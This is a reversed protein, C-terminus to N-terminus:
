VSSSNELIDSVYLQMSDVRKNIQLNTRKKIVSKRKVQNNKQKKEQKSKAKQPQEGSQALSLRMKGMMARDTYALHSLNKLTDDGINNLVEPIDIRERSYKLVHHTIGDLYIHEIEKDHRCVKKRSLYKKMLKKCKDYDLRGSKEYMDHLKVFFKKLFRRDRHGGLDTKVSFKEEKNLKIFFDNVEDYYGRDFREDRSAMEFLKHNSIDIIYSLYEFNEMPSCAWDTSFNTVDSFFISGEAKYKTDNFLMMNMAHNERDSDLKVGIYSINIGLELCIRELTTAFWCL